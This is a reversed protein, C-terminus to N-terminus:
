KCYGRTKKLDDLLQKRSRGRRGVVEIRGEIKGETGYKLLCKRHLIRYIWNADRRKIKQPVNREM